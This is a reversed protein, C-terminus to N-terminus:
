RRLKLVVVIVIISISSIGLFLVLNMDINFGSTTTTTTTTTNTIVSAATVIVQVTDDADYGRTDIVRLKFSYTGVSLGDISYSITSGDWTENRNLVSNQYIEYRDPISSSPRWIISYGTQGYKYTMDEPSDIMPLTSYITVIVTDTKNDNSTGNVFLTYNYLGLTDTSVSTSIDSGNWVGSDHIEENRYIIFYNPVESFADWIITATSGIEFKVDDHNVLVVSTHGMPYHDVSGASGSISYNGSGGYNSWWNGTTVNDDWLNTAGNDHGTGFCQMFDYKIVNNYIVNNYSVGTVDIQYISNLILQNGIITSNVTDELWIGNAGCSSIDSGMATINSCNDLYIGDGPAGSITCHSINCNSSDEIDICSTGILRDLQIGSCNDITMGWIFNETSCYRIQGNTVNELTFASAFVTTNFSCNTIKFYATTNSISICPGDAEIPDTFEFLEITYPNDLTGEGMWGGSAFGDNSTINISDHSLYVQESITSIELKGEDSVFTRNTGNSCLLLALIFCMVVIKRM